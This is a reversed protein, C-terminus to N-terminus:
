IVSEQIKEKMESIEEPMAVVGEKEEWEDPTGNSNVYDYVAKTCPKVEFSNKWNEDTTDAWEEADKWAEDETRGVGFIAFKPQIICYHDGKVSEEVIIEEYLNNVYGKLKENHKSVKPLYKSFVRTLSNVYKSVKDFAEAMQEISEVLSEDVNKVSTRPKVDVKSIDTNVKMINEIIDVYEPVTESLEKIFGELAKKNNTREGEACVAVVYDGVELFKHLISEQVDFLNTAEEKITQSMESKVSTATQAIDNAVIYENLLEQLHENEVGENMCASVENKKEKLVEILNSREKQDEMTHVRSKNKKKHKKWLDADATYRTKGGTAFSNIRALAWQHPTTGPRHGSKWAAMGRNYVQKLIGYAIGTEESKNKIARESSSDESLESEGYMDQYKNTHKSPKTEADKDGPAPKYADDDGDDMDAHKDFHKERKQKTESDLGKYYKKSETLAYLSDVIEFATVKQNKIFRYLHRKLADGLKSMLKGIVGSGVSENYNGDIINRYYEEEDRKFVYLRPSTPSKNLELHKKYIDDIVDTLKPLAEKVDALVKETDYNTYSRQSDKGVKVLLGGVQLSKAITQDSANFYGKVTKIISEDIGSKVSEARKALASAQYYLEAAEEFDKSLNADTIVKRVEDENKKIIKTINM